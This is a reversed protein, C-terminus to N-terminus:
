MEEFVVQGNLALVRLMAEDFNAKVRLLDQM